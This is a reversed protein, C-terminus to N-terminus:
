HDPLEFSVSQHAATLDVAKNLAGYFRTPDEARLTFTSPTLDTFSFKGSEDVPRSQGAHVGDMITVSARPVPYGGNFVTGTLTFM